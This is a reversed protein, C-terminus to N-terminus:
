FFLGSSLAAMVGFVAALIFTALVLPRSWHRGHALVHTLYVADAAFILTILLTLWAPIHHFVEPQSLYKWLSFSYYALIIFEVFGAAIQMTLSEQQLAVNQDMVQKFQRQLEVSERSRMLDVRTRVVEIGAKVDGMTLAVREGAREVREQAQRSVSLYDALDTELREGLLRRATQVLRSYSRDLITRSERLLRYYGALVGYQGSLQNIAEDLDNSEAMEPDALDFQRNLQAAVSLEVRNTESDIVRAREGLYRMRFNHAFIAQDLRPLWDRLINLGEATLANPSIQYFRRRREAATKIYVLSGAPTSLSTEGTSVLLGSMEEREVAVLTTAGIQLSTESLQKLRNIVETELRNYVAGIDDIDAATIELFLFSKRNLLAIQGGAIAAQDVVMPQNSRIDFDAVRGAMPRGALETWIRSVAEVDSLLYYLYHRIFRGM